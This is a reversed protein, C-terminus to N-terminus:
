HPKAYESFGSFDLLVCPEDGVTWADHGAPMRFAEGAKVEVEDGGDMVVKMRGELVYGIHEAQCSDTGALPKVDVSWKWGPEFTGRGATIGDFTLVDLHGNAAFERTEDPKEFSKTDLKAMTAGM